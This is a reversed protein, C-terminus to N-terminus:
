LQRPDVARPGNRTIRCGPDRPSRAGRELATECEGSGRCVIAFWNPSLANPHTLGTACELNLAKITGLFHVGEAGGQTALRTDVPKREVHDVPRHGHVVIIVDDIRLTKDPPHALARAHWRRDHTL